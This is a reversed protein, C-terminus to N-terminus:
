PNVITVSGSCFNSLTSGDTTVSDGNLLRAQVRYKITVQTFENEVSTEDVFYFPSQLEWTTNDISDSDFDMDYVQLTSYTAGGDYSVQLRYDMGFPQDIDAEVITFSMTGQVERYTGTHTNLVDWTLIDAYSGTLATTSTSKDTIRRTPGVPDLLTNKVNSTAFQNVHKKSYETCTLIKQSTDSNVTDFLIDTIQAYTLEVSNEDAIGGSGIFVGKKYGGVASNTVHNGSGVESFFGIEGWPDSHVIGVNDTGSSPATVFVVEVQTIDEGNNNPMPNGADKADMAATIQTGRSGGTYDYLDYHTSFTQKSWVDTANELFVKIGEQRSLGSFGTLVFSTQAGTGNYTDEDVLLQSYLVCSDIVFGQPKFSTGDTNRYHIAYRPYQNVPNPYDDQLVYVDRVTAFIAGLSSTGSPDADASIGDVFRQVLLDQLICSSPNEVTIGKTTASSSSIHAVGRILLGSIEWFSNQGSAGSNNLVLGNTDNGFQLASRNRGDGYLKFNDGEFSLTSNCLYRRTGSTTGNNFSPIKLATGYEPQALLFNVGGRIATADDTVGDGVAQFWRANPDVDGNYQRVWAGSGSGTPSVLIGEQTDLVYVANLISSDYKWISGDFFVIQSTNASKLAARSAIATISLQITELGLTIVEINSSGNAPASGFTLTTGSVSYAGKQIFTGDVFVLTNNEGSPDETLTFAVTAGDGSFTDITITAANIPVWASGTWVKMKSSTSNFYLDGTQLTDGNDRASPDTSAALLFRAATQSLGTLESLSVTEGGITVTDAQLSAVNLLNFSNMDLDAGMSNPTSGDLFLVKQFQDRLNEFNENLAETSQFGSSVTTVTPLKAM